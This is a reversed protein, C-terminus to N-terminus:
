NVRLSVLTFNAEGSSFGRGKAWRACLFTLQDRVALVLVLPGLAWSHDKILAFVDAWM